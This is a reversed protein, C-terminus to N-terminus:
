GTQLMLDQWDIGKTGNKYGEMDAASIMGGGRIDTLAQAYEYTDLLDYKKLINSVGIQVDATIRTKGAEGSRTTVLIVGNAGRSGYIATASADKLVEMSQIDAPNLGDLGSTSVIGDVVYLPDSSKNISTTGRIRVKVSGGPVGSTTTVEVGAARGKLIDEVRKVPQDRFQKESVSAISGTLDSKRVTGYGIVVVEELAQLDEALTINLSTQNGVAVEQTVYGIYSVALTAGPAVNVSFKGDTDTISGNAPVGKEVINAGIIPEGARDAVTGTIRRGQQGVAQTRVPTSKRIVINKENVEYAVDQGTLIQNLVADLPQNQASVSIVKRTNVDNSEYVFMYKYEKKLTELANRVTVNNLSLTISQAFAMFYFCFLMGTMFIIKM